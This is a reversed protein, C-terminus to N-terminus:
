RTTAAKGVPNSELLAARKSLKNIDKGSGSLAELITRELAGHTYHQAVQPEIDM